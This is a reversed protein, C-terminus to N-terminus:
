YRCFLMCLRCVYRCVYMVCGGPAPPGLCVWVWLGPDARPILCGGGFYLGRRDRLSVPPLPCVSCCAPWAALNSPPGPLQLAWLCYAARGQIYTHVKPPHNQAADAAAAGTGLGVWHGGGARVYMYMCVYVCWVCVCMYVVCGCLCDTVAVDRCRGRRVTVSTRAPSPQAPVSGPQSLQSTSGPFNVQNLIPRYGGGLLNQDGGPPPRVQMCAHAHSCFFDMCVVCGRTGPGLVAVFCLSLSLSPFWLCGCM